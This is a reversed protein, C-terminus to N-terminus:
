SGTGTPTLPAAHPDHLSVEDINDPKYEVLIRLVSGLFDDLGQFDYCGAAFTEFHKEVYETMIDDWRSTEESDWENEDLAFTPVTTESADFKGTEENPIYTLKKRISATAPEFEYLTCKIPPMDWLVTINVVLVDLNYNAVHKRQFAKMQERTHLNTFTDIEDAELGRRSEVWRSLVDTKTRANEDQRM